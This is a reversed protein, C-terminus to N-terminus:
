SAELILADVTDGPLQDLRDELGTMIQDVVESAIEYADPVDPPAPVKWETETTVVNLGRTEYTSFRWGCKLCQRRRRTFLTADRTEVVKTTGDCRECDRISQM